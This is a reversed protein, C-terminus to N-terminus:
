NRLRNAQEWQDALAEMEAYGVGAAQALTMVCQIVLRPPTDVETGVDLAVSHLLLTTACAVVERHTAPM